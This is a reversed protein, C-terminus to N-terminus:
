PLDADSAQIISTCTGRYVSQRLYSPYQVEAQVSSGAKEKLDHTSRSWKVFSCALPMQYGHDFGTDNFALTIPWRRRKPPTPSPVGRCGLTCAGRHNFCQRAPQIELVMSTTPHNAQSEDLRPQCSHVIIARRVDRQSQTRTTKSATSSGHRGFPVSDPQRHSRESESVRVDSM